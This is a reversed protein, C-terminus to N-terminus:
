QEASIDTVTNHSEETPVIAAGREGPRRKEMSSTMELVPRKASPTKEVAPMKALSRSVAPSRKPSQETPVIAAGRKGPRRKKMSSTMELMPRKASPTKEVAPMKALSRIVAPSAPCCKLSRGSDAERYCPILNDPRPYCVRSRKVYGHLAMRQETPSIAAGSKSTRIKQTSLMMGLVHKKASSMKALVQMKKLPTKRRRVAPPAPCCKLSGGRSKELTSKSKQAVQRSDSSADQDPRPYRKAHAERRKDSWCYVQRGTGCGKEPVGPISNIIATEATTLQKHSPYVGKGTCYFNDSSLAGHRRLLAKALRKALCREYSDSARMNPIISTAKASQWAIVDAYLVKILDPKRHLAGVDWGPKKHDDAAMTNGLTCLLGSHM